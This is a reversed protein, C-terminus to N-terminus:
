RTRQVDRAPARLPRNQELEQPNGARAPAAGRAHSIGDAAPVLNKFLRIRRVKAAKRVHSSQYATSSPPLAVFGPRRVSSELEPPLRAALASPAGRLCPSEM